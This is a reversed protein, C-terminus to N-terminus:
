VLATLAPPAKVPSLSAFPDEPLISALAVLLLIIAIAGFFVASGWLAGVAMHRFIWGYLSPEKEGELYWKDQSM